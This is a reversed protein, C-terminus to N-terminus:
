DFTVSIENAIDFKVGPIDKMLEQAAAPSMNDANELQKMIEPNDLLKDFEFDMLTITSGDVFMANTEQIDGNIKVAVRVRMGRFLEKMQEFGMIGEDSDEGSDEGSDEDESVEASGKSENTPPTILLRAPSGPTFQFLVFEEEESSGSEEGPMDPMSSGPNQNVRVTNIDDFSYYANYGTGASTEVKEYSVLKVGTGMKEAREIVESKKFLEFTTKAEDSGGEEGEMSMSESMGKLMGAVMGNMLIREEIEGSGDENVTVLMQTEICGSTAFAIILALVAGYIKNM